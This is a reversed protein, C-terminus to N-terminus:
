YIVSFWRKQEATLSTLPSMLGNKLGSASCKCDNINEEDTKVIKELLHFGKITNQRLIKMIEQQTVHEITTDWCDYDTVFCCPLYCLGAERALAFEPFQTMGIIQAGMRKYSVSEAYTSFYPGEICVYTKDFHITFDCSPQHDRVVQSLASCVPHALSVHGIIGEGCFTHPRVGKTRDIYQSIIAVDGPKCEQELSGVASFAIFRSAGWRKLAFINARYNVETPLHEHHEGHRSIYLCEENGIRVRKFYSSALGFPTERDLNEIIEFGEIKEFGTGGIIGFM